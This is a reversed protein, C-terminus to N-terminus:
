AQGFPAQVAAKSRARITQPLQIHHQDGALGETGFEAAEIARILVESWGEVGKCLLAEPEPM